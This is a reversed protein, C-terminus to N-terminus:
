WSTIRWSRTPPRREVVAGTGVFMVTGSLVRLTTGYTGPLMRVISSSPDAAAVVIARNLSCPQEHSCRATDAGGPSAYIVEGEAVCHGTDVDCVDSACETDLSCARCGGTASDCVPADAYRDCDANGTCSTCSASGPDCVPQEISCDGAAVCAEAECLLNRCVFGDPCGRPLIGGLRACDADTTCCVGPVPKEQCAALALLWVCLYRTRVRTSKSSRMSCIM